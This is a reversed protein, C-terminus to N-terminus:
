LQPIYAKVQSFYLPITSFLHIPQNTAIKWGVMGFVVSVIFAAVAVAVGAITWWLSRQATKQMIQDLKISNEQHRILQLKEQEEERAAHDAMFCQVQEMLGKRGNGYMDSYIRRLITEAQRLREEPTGVFDLDSM